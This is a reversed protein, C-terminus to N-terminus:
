SIAFPWKAPRAAKCSVGAQDRADDKSVEPLNALLTKRKGPSTGGHDRQPKKAQQDYSYKLLSPSDTGNYVSLEM